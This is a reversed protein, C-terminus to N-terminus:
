IPAALKLEHPRPQPDSFLRRYRDNRRRCEEPDDLNGEMGVHRSTDQVFKCREFRREMFQQLAVAMPLGSSVLEALVIADEIAMAAGQAIHPSSAHAADGILLARGKFWPPPLIIEEIPTYIISEPGNIRDRIQGIVGGFQSLRQKIQVHLKNTPMRPNDPENTVLLLYMTENTLPVLGAKAGVGLYMAQYTIEPPRHTTYRWVGHGTFQPDVKGFLFERVVSRIGDAGVILDYDEEEGTSFKVRTHADGETLDSLTVGFRLHAGARRAANTLIRHLAPRPLMNIAPRDPAAIRLLNLKAILGGDADMYRYEDTQFGAALCEDLVGISSLARLANGPQLIGVGLIKQVPQIEVVNARVGRQGLATALTLGGIGAGVILVKDISMGLQRKNM